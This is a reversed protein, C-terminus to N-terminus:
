LPLQLRKAARGYSKVTILGIEVVCRVHTGCHMWGGRQLWVQADEHPAVQVASKRVHRHIERERFSTHNLAASQPQQKQEWTSACPFTATIGAILQPNSKPLARMGRHKAARRKQQHGSLFVDTKAPLPCVLGDRFATLPVSKCAPLMSFYVDCKGHTLRM